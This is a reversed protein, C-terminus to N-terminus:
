DSWEARMRRQMKVADEQFKLPIPVASYQRKKLGYRAVADVPQVRIEVETGPKLETADIHIAGNELATTRILLEKM